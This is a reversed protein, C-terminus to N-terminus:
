SAKLIEENSENPTVEAQPWRDRAIEPNPIRNDFDLWIRKDQRCDYTRCVLPRNQYVNCQCGQSHDLHVCYGERNQAIAYPQAYNWKVIREDLDQVSLAFWLKCCSAKCLHIRHECDIQVSDTAAYKDPTEVLHIKPSQEERQQFYASVEKKREELEHLRIV